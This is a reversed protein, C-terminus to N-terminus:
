LVFFIDRSMPEEGVKWSFKVFVCHFPQICIRSCALVKFVYMLKAMLFANCVIARTFISMEKGECRQVKIELEGTTGRWYKKSSKYYEILVSLYKSSTEGWNFGEFVEPSFSRTM